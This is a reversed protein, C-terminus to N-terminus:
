NQLSVISMIKMMVEAQADSYHAQPLGTHCDRLSFRSSKQSVANKVTCTYVSDPKERRIHLEQGVQASGSGTWEYSVHSQSSVSCFLARSINNLKCTVIPQPVADMVQVENASSQLKGNIQIVSRYIGNDLGTMNHVTLQGSSVEIESRGRFQGYDQFNNLEHEAVIKGNHTWLIDEPKGQINPNLSLSM